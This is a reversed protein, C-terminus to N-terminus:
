NLFFNTIYPYNSVIFEQEIECCQLLRILSKLSKSYNLYPDIDIHGKNKEIACIKTLTETKTKYKLKSRALDRSM